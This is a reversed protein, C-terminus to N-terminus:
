GTNERAPTAQAGDGSTRKRIRGVSVRHQSRKPMRGASTLLAPERSVPLGERGAFCNQPFGPDASARPPHKVFFVADQQKKKAIESQQHKAHSGAM